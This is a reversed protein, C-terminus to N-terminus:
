TSRWTTHRLGCIWRELRVTVFGDHQGLTTQRHTRALKCRSCWEVVQTTAGNPKAM